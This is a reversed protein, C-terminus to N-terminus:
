YLILSLRLKGRQVSLLQFISNGIGNSWCIRSNLTSQVTTVQNLPIIEMLSEIVKPLGGTTARGVQTWGNAIYGVEFDGHFETLEETPYYFLEGGASTNRVSTGDCTSDYMGINNMNSLSRSEDHPPTRKYRRKYQYKSWLFYYWCCSSSNCRSALM